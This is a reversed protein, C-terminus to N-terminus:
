AALAAGAQWAASTRKLGKNSSADLIDRTWLASTELM